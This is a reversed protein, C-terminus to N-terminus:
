LGEVRSLLTAAVRRRARREIPRRRAVEEIVLLHLSMETAGEAGLRGRRRALDLAVQDDFSEREGVLFIQDVVRVLERPLDPEIQAFCIGGNVSSVESAGRASCWKVGRERLVAWTGPVLQLTPRSGVRWTVVEDTPGRPERGLGRGFSVCAMGPATVLMAVPFMGLCVDGILDWVAERNEARAAM